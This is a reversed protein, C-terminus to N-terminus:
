YNFSEAPSGKVGLGTIKYLGGIMPKTPPGGVNEETMVFVDSSSTTVYLEDLNKGGFCLSTILSEPMEVSRLLSEPEKTSINLVQNGQFVAVWLNGDLDITMGDPIGPIGHKELSFLIQRNAVFILSMRTVFSKLKCLTLTENNYDFKDVTRKSSDIYYFTKLCKSWTIGNSVSVDSFHKKIQNKTISYLSGTKPLGTAINVQSHITGAWLIGFADVKGDDFMNSEGGPHTDVSAITEVYNSDSSIGDWTIVWIDRGSSVIFRDSTGKIPMIFSPPKKLISTTFQNTSPVYKNISSKIYDIFYLSQTEADWHPAEGHGCCGAEEIRIIVPEM